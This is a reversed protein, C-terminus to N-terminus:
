LDKIKWDLFLGKKSKKRSFSLGILTIKKKKSLFLEYYRREEIQHLAASSGAELKIEFIYIDKKTIIVLDIRGKDTSIESQAEIDLLSCILQFLSHYYREQPIHLQYPIQALLGQLITCFSDVNHKELAQGLESLSKEITPIREQSYAALLYKKFSERVEANPYMLTYKNKHPDYANITLYGMQFLVTILPLSEIDFIGLSTSTLQAKDLDELDQYQNKLLEILFGPTGSAFWYNELKQKKFYYLISFPNYVRIQADSFRYGNYWEKLDKKIENEPIKKIKSQKKIFLDFYEEVEAHTYGLLTAARPDTTVDDLNNLGSFISTKSFKTVGTIFIARLYADLSKIASFFNKLEKRIESAIKLSDLNNILPYDYEDILIVVNNEKFLTEVLKQIKLEPFPADSLDLGYEKGISDLKWCLSTVFREPDKISFQSFNLYIVPHTPWEYRAHKGIWLDKFLKKNGIFIEQLTSLLLSKGFRRPRSLFYFRGGTILDHIIETKDSYLYNNEIMVNFASVDIPLKQLSEIEQKKKARKM